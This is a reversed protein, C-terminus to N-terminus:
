KSCKKSCKPIINTKAGKQSSHRMKRQCQLAKLQYHQAKVPRGLKNYMIGISLLSLTEGLTSHEKRSIKLSQQFVKRAESYHEQSVLLRGQQLTHLIIPKLNDM